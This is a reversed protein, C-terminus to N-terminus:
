ISTNTNNANLADYEPQISISCILPLPRLRLEVVGSVSWYRRPLANANTRDQYYDDLSILMRIRLLFTSATQLEPILM